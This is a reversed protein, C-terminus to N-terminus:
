PQDHQSTTHVFHRRQLKTMSFCATEDESPWSLPFYWLSQKLQWVHWTRQKSTNSDQHGISVHDELFWERVLCEVDKIAFGEAGVVVM